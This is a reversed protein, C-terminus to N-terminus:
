EISEVLKEALAICKEAPSTNRQKSKDGNREEIWQYVDLL